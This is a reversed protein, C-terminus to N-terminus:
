LSSEESPQEPEAATGRKKPSKSTAATTGTVCYGTASVQKKWVIFLFYNITEDKTLIGTVKGNPCRTKLDDVMEDIFDNDFNFGLFITKSAEVKVQNRRDQPIPTLSVSNVSACASTLLASTLLILKLKM